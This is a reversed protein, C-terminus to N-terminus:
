GETGGPQETPSVIVLFERAKVRRLASVLMIIEDERCPERRTPKVVEHIQRGSAWLLGWGDQMEEPQIMGKPCLIYREQGVGRGAREHAKHKNRQFDSRSVKCEVLISLSSQWGVADPIEVTLSHIESLVVGCNRSNTLWRVARIRLEEHTFDAPESWIAAESM